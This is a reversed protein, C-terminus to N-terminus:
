KKKLTAVNLLTLFKMGNIYSDASENWRATIGRLHYVKKGDVAKLEKNLCSIIESEGSELAQKRKKDKGGILKKDSNLADYSRLWYQAKELVERERALRLAVHPQGSKPAASKMKELTAEYVKAASNFRRNVSKLQPAIPLDLRLRIAVENPYLLLNFSKTELIEHRKIGVEHLIFRIIGPDYEKTVDIPYALSWKNAFTNYPKDIRGKKGKSKDTTRTFYDKATEDPEAPPWCQLGNLKSTSRKKLGDKFEDAALAAMQAVHEAYHRNRRLFEWALQEVEKCALLPYQEAKRWDAKYPKM